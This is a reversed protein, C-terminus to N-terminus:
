VGQEIWLELTKIRLLSSARIRRNAFDYDGKVAIVEGPKIPVRDHFSVKSLVDYTSLTFRTEQSQFEFTPGVVLGTRESPRPGGSSSLRMVIGEVKGVFWEGVLEECNKIRVKKIIDVPFFEPYLDLSALLASEPHAVFSSVNVLVKWVPSTYDVPLNYHYLYSPFVDNTLLQGGVESLRDAACSMVYEPDDQIELGMHEAIKYIAKEIDLAGKLGDPDIILEAIPSGGETPANENGHVKRVYGITSGDTSIVITGPIM